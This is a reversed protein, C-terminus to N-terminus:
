FHGEFELKFRYDVAEQSGNQNKAIPIQVGTKIAYNRYTWMLGPSAFWLDGGTDALEAGNQRARDMYEGNLELMWVWDPELYGTPRFRIGGVLDIRFLDGKKLGADNEGNARYGVSAWRYWKRGEYGYSAGLFADSSGKDAFEDDGTGGPVIAVSVAVSEQLGLSDKRWVRYKTRLAIEGRGTFSQGAETIDLFPIEIGVTWDSTIGYTLALGYEQERRTGAEQLLTGAQLEVGGRFLTHPGQGFVPDHSWAFESALLMGLIAIRCRHMM